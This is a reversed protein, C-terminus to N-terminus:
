RFGGNDKTREFICASDCESAAIEVLGPEANAPRDAPQPSPATYMSGAEAEPRTLAPSSEGADTPLRGALFRDVIAAIEERNVKGGSSFFAPESGVSARSSQPAASVAPASVAPRAGSRVPRTEFAVRKIDM